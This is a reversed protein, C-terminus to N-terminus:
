REGRRHDTTLRVGARWANSLETDLLCTRSGCWCHYTLADEEAVPGRGKEDCPMPLHRPMGGDDTGLRDWFGTV